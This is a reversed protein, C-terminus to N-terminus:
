DTADMVEEHLANFALMLEKTAPVGHQTEYFMAFMAEPAMQKHEADIRTVTRPYDTRVDLANPLIERIRDAIGPVPGTTKVTVYLYDQGFNSASQELEEITGAVARLRRGSTLAISELRASKGPHAEILMVRKEQGQEGFDLQLPSGAYRCPSPALVEQPRHLHGLGIYHASAPFRQPSIAYPQAVHIERESGSTQSGNVYLHALLINITSNSFEDTLKACMQGIREEYAAYWTEEPGMMQCVDVIKKESVFPLVAINATEDNKSFRILGGDTPAAPEPRIYIRLPDLLQRLAALRKPHDHNGGIVVAAMGRALLESFLKYVLRESDPSPVQSDFLDGTLLLCDIKERIAIDVIETLVAEQEELRSHGRLTRGVHWDSTHLFRM